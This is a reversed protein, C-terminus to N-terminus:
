TKKDARRRRCTPRHASVAPSLNGSEEMEDGQVELTGSDAPDSESLALSDDTDPSLASPSAPDGGGDTGSVPVDSGGHQDPGPEACNDNGPENIDDVPQAVIQADGHSPQHFDSTADQHVEDSSDISAHADDAQEDPGDHYGAPLEGYLIRYM